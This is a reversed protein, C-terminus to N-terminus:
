ADLELLKAKLAAREEKYEAETIKGAEFEDDLDAIDQLLDMRSNSESRAAARAARRRVIPYALLGIAAVAAVGLVILGITQTNDTATPTTTTGPATAGSQPATAPLNNFTAKITTGAAFKEGTAAIFNPAGQVGAMPNPAATLQQSQVTAGVDTVYLGFKGIAYPLKLNFEYTPPVYPVAYSYVVQDQGPGIPLTYTLIGDGRLVTDNVNPDDFEVNIAQALIPLTLTARHPGAVADGIYVRDGTNEVVVIQQVALWPAQVDVVLHTQNVRIVSADSTSEFVTIKAPLTTSNPSTFVLVDSYYDVGGYTANVFYRTTSITELNSFVSRGNADSQATTTIMSSMNQPVTYLTVTLNATSAPKADQTGNVLVVEIKGPGGGQARARPTPLALLALAVLAAAVLALLATRANFFTQAKIKFGERALNQKWM